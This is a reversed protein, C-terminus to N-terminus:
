SINMADQFGGIFVTLERAHVLIGSKIASGHPVLETCIESIAGTEHPKGNECFIARSQHTM